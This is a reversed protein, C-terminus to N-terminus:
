SWAKFWTLAVKRNNEGVIVLKFWTIHDNTGSVYKGLPYANQLQEFEEAPTNYNVTIEIEM